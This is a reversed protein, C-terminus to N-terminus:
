HSIDKRLVERLEKLYATKNLFSFDLLQDECFSLSIYKKNRFLSVYILHNHSIPANTDSKISQIKLAEGLISDIKLEKLLSDKSQSRYAATNVYNKRDVIIKYKKKQKSEWLIFSFAPRYYSNGEYLQFVLKSSNNLSNAMKISKKLFVNRTTDCMQIGRTETRIQQANLTFSAFVLLILFINLQQKM